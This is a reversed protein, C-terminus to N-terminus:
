YALKVTMAALILAALLLPLGSPVAAFLRLLAQFLLAGTM